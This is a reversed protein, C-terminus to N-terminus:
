VVGRWAIRSRHQNLAEDAHAACTTSVIEVNSDQGARLIASLAAIYVDRWLVREPQTLRPPGPERRPAPISEAARRKDRPGEHAASRQASFEKAHERAFRGLPWDEVSSTVDAV